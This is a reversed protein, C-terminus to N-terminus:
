KNYMASMQKRHYLILPLSQESSSSEMRLALTQWCLTQYNNWSVKSIQIIRKNNTLGQHCHPMFLFFLSLVPPLLLPEALWEVLREPLPEALREPLLDPLAVLLPELLLLLELLVAGFDDIWDLWDLWDLSEIDSSETLKPDSPLPKIGSNVFIVFTIKLVVFWM